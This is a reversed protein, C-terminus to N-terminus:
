TGINEMPMSIYFFMYFHTLQKGVSFNRFCVIKQFCNPLAILKNIKLVLLINSCSIYLIDIFYFPLTIGSGIRLFLHYITELICESVYKFEQSPHYKSFTYVPFPLSHIPQNGAYKHLFLSLHMFILTSLINSFHKSNYM